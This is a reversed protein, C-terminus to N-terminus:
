SYTKTLNDHAQQVSARNRYSQPYLLRIVCVLDTITSLANDPKLSPLKRENRPLWNDRIDDLDEGRQGLACLINAFNFADRATKPCGRWLSVALQAVASQIHQSLSRVAELDTLASVALQMGQLREADDGLWSGRLCRDLTSNLWQEHADRRLGKGGDICLLRCAAATQVLHPRTHPAASFGGRAHECRRVWNLMLSLKKPPCGLQKALVLAYCTRAMLPVGGPGRLYHRHRVSGANISKIIDAKYKKGLFDPSLVACLLALHSVHSLSSYRRRRDMVTRVAMVFVLIAWMITLM